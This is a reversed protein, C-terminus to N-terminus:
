VNSSRLITNGPGNGGGNGSGGGNGGGTVTQVITSGGTVYTSVVTSGGTIYTSVTTSGGQVITTVKTKGGSVYTTVMTSGGSVITTLHPPSTITSGGNGGTGSGGTGNGGGPGSYPTLLKASDVGRKYIGSSGSKLFCNNTKAESDWSVGLCPSAIMFSLTNYMDCSAICDGLSHQSQTTLTEETFLMNCMIQYVMGMPSTFRANNSAPCTPLATNM